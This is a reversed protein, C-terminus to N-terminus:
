EDQLIKSVPQTRLAPKNTLSFGELVRPRIRGEGLDEADELSFVPALWRYTGGTVDDLGQDSWRVRAWLGDPRLDLEEAWGAARTERDLDGSAGDYDVLSGGGQRIFRIAMAGLGRPDLVQVLGESGEVPFEGIPVVHLFGDAPLEFGTERGIARNLFSRAKGLWGGGPSAPPLQDALSVAPGTRNARNPLREEDTESEDPAASADAPDFGRGVEGMIEEAKERSVPFAAVLIEVGTARPITGASVDQVIKAMARVQAGNLTLGPDISETGEPAAAAAPERAPAPGPIDELRYGTLESFQAADPKYGLKRIQAAHGLRAAVQKESAHGIEWYALVPEGPHLAQILPLDFQAQFIESIQAAIRAAISDFTKQHANGALTGSGSQTLMTLLSSTAALVIENDQRNLHEEFPHNRADVRSSAVQTGSPLAGRADSMVGRAVAMWDYYEPTGPNIGPPMIFFLWPLGYGEVFADWDKQSLSKRVFAILAIEDVPDDVERTIFRAPDIEEGEASSTDSVFEWPGYIGSRRFHWQPVPELRDIAWVGPALRDKGYVKELHAFGRFDAEALFRVAASLNQIREYAARLTAAQRHARPDAAAHKMVRVSPDMRLISAAIKRRCARLTADRKEVTRYLWQLDCYDGREGAELLHVVRAMDLGRLPSFETQVFHGAFRALATARSM